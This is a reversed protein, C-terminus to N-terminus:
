RRTASRASRSESAKLDWSAARASTTGTVPATLDLAESRTVLARDGEVRFLIEDGERLGLAGLVVDPLTVLGHQSVSATADM